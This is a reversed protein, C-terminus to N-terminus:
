HMPWHCVQGWFGSMLHPIQVYYTRIKEPLKQWTELAVQVWSKPSNKKKKKKKTFFWTLSTQNNVINLAKSDALLKSPRSCISYISMHMLTLKNMEVWCAPKLSKLFNPCKLWIEMDLYFKLTCYDKRTLLNLIISHLSHGMRGRQSHVHILPEFCLVSNHYRVSRRNRQKSIVM